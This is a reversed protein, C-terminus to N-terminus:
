SGIKIVKIRGRSIQERSVGPEELLHCLLVAVLLERSNDTLGKVLGGTPNTLLVFDMSSIYSSLLSPPVSWGKITMGSGNTHGVCYKWHLSVCLFHRPQTIVSVNACLYNVSVIGVNLVLLDSAGLVSDCSEGTM